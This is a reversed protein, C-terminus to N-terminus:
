LDPSGLEFAGIDCRYEDFAIIRSVGNQALSDPCSNPDGDDVGPSLMNPIFAHTPTLGQPPDQVPYNGLYFDLPLLNPSQNLINGTLTGVFTCGQPSFLLNYGLSEITGSCEPHKGNLPVSLDSNQAFMSNHADVLTNSSSIFLGGGDGIRDANSDATNFAVTVSSLSFYGSSVHIGGGNRSTTNGSITSNSIRGIPADLAFFGDYYIGGGDRSAINENITSLNIVLFIFGDNVSKAYIGGGFNASNDSIMSNSILLSAADGISDETTEVLIGGGNGATNNKSIVSDQLSLIGHVAIAGGGYNSRNNRFTVNMFQGNGYVGGGAATPGTFGTTNGNQIIANELRFGGGAGEGTFEVTQLIRNNWGPGGEITAVGGITEIFFQVSINRTAKLPIGINNADKLTLTYTTPQLYIFVLTDDAVHGTHVTASAEMLAARLTCKIIPRKTACVGDGPNADVKDETSNVYFEIRSNALVQAPPDTALLSLCIFFISFIRTVTLRNM